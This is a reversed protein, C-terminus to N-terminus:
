LRRAHAVLHMALAHYIRWDRHQLADALTSRAPPSSLGM